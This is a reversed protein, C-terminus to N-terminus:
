PRSGIVHVLSYMSGRKCYPVNCRMTKTTRITQDRFDKITEARAQTPSSLAQTKARANDKLVEYHLEVKLGEHDEIKFERAHAEQALHHEV